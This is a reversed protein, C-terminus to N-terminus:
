IQNSSFEVRPDREDPFRAFYQRCCPLFKEKRSFRVCRNWLVLEPSHYVWVSLFGKLVSLWVYRWRNVQRWVMAWSPNSSRPQNFVWYAHSSGNSEKFRCLHLNRRQLGLM